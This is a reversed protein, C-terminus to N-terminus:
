EYRTKNLYTNVPGFMPNGNVGFIEDEQDRLIKDKEKRDQEIWEKRIRMLYLFRGDRNHVRYISGHIPSDYVAADGVRVSDRTPDVLVWDNDMMTLIRSGKEDADLVWYYEYSPDGDLLRLRDRNFGNLSGSKRRVNSEERRATVTEAVVVVTKPPRGRGRKVPQESNDVINELIDNM